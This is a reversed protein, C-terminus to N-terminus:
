FEYLLNWTVILSRGSIYVVVEIVSCFQFVISSSSVERLVLQVCFIFCVVRGGHCYDNSSAHCWCGSGVVSSRDDTNVAVDSGVNAPSIDEVPLKIKPLLRKVEETTYIYIKKAMRCFESVFIFSLTLFIRNCNKKDIRYFQHELIIVFEILHWPLLWVWIKFWPPLLFWETTM